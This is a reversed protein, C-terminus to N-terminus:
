DFTYSVNGFVRVGNEHYGPISVYERNLLNEARVNVRLNKNMQAEVFANAIAYGGLRNSDSNRTSAYRKGVAQVDFGARVNNWTYAVNVGGFQQARYALWHGTARDEAELVNVNAGLEWAGLKTEASLTAGRMKAKAINEMTGAWTIPDSKYTILDDVRQDFLTVRASTAGERYELALETNKAREPNLNPNGKYNASPLDQYLDAFTPARFATGYSAIARLTPTFQYGVALNGMTKNGFQSNDDFRLATQVSLNGYTGLYGVFASQTDRKTKLFTSTGSVRQEISEIGAQIQGNDLQIQNLWQVHQDKTTNLSRDKKFGGNMWDSMNSLSDYRDRFESYRLTSTWHNTFQATWYASASSQRTKARDDFQNGTAADYQTNASQNFFQAGIEHADNIDHTLSLSVARQRTGDDDPHFGYTNKENTASEGETQFYSTSLAYRTNEGLKGQASLRYQASAQTGVGASLEVFSKDHNKKTFVQIVGGIADAGHIGSLAGYVIEIREVHAAPLLHLPSAGTVGSHVRVGDILILTQNTNAGRLFLGATQGKGGNSTTLIGAQKSLIEHVSLGAYERLKADDIVVREQLVQNVPVTTRTATVLTEELQETNALAISASLASLLFPAATMLKNM